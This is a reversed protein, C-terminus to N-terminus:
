LTPTTLDASGSMLEQAADYRDAVTELVLVAVDAAASAAGADAPDVARETVLSLAEASSLVEALTEAVAGRSGRMWDILADALDATAVLREDLSGPAGSLRAAARKRAADYAQAAEGSWADPPPLSEAIGACSRADDRLEPAAEALDDPRLAAVAQIADWPLLRVRRLAPWVRHGAPAGAATLVEDVRRMLPAAPGLMTDLRDTM